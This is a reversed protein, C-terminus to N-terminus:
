ILRRRRWLLVGAGLILISGLITFIRTGPGGTNPLAVGPTNGVVITLKNDELRLLNDVNNILTIEMKNSSNLEIKFTPDSSLKVYGAPFGTEEIKYYGETLGEFNFIGNLTYTEDSIKVDSLTKSGSDGWETDKAQFTDSTYKTVKFSAGKLLDPNSANVDNKDVKKLTIDTESEVKKYVNYVYFELFGNRYIGTDSGYHWTGSNYASVPQDENSPYSLGTYAGLIEPVSNYTDTGEGTYTESYHRGSYKDNRWVYETEIRTGSYTYIDGNAAEIEDPITSQDEQIYYMGPTVDYDYVLGLGDTGVSIDKSHLETYGSYNVPTTYENVNLGIVDHSTASHNEWINFTNRIDMNSSLQIRNGTEDVVYKTIEIAVIQSDTEDANGGLVFDMGTIDGWSPYGGRLWEAHGATNDMQTGGYWPLYTQLPPCENRPDWYDFSAATTVDASITMLNGDADYLENDGDKLTFTLHKTVTITYYVRNDLRNKYTNTASDVANLNEGHMANATSFSGEIRVQDTSFDTNENKSYGTIYFANDLTKVKNGDQKDIQWATITARKLDDITVDFSSTAEITKDNGESVSFLLNGNKDYYNGYALPVDITSSGVISIDIHDVANQAQQPPKVSSATAFYVEAVNSGTAQGSIRLVGDSGVTVGLLNSGNSLTHNGINYSISTNSWEDRQVVPENVGTYFNYQYGTIRANSSDETTLGSQDSPDMYRFYFAEAAKLENFSLADYDHYLHNNNYTWLMPESVYVNRVSGDGNLDVQEVPTLTGDNNVICFVDSGEINVKVLVMYATGATPASTLVTGTVSFGDQIYTIGKRDESVSLDTIVETEEDGFHVVSLSDGLSIEMADKYEIKVQVPVAPEVKGENEDVITIDFFRAFSVDENAVGLEAASNSLYSQYEETGAEIERVRLDANEPIGATEDYTVTITWTDGKADIFDKTIQADTVKVTWVEGDKMTITLTEESTFPKLSILIWEGANLQTDNLRSIDEESLESSYEVELGYASKVMGLTMDADIKGVWVLSPDSFEVNKIDAVFQDIDGQEDDSIIGLVEVLQHLTMYGGGPLSFEYTEGNVSYEFDVWEGLMLVAGVYPM